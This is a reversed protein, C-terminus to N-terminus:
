RVTKVRECSRSVKDVKDVTARDDKGGGCRVKDRSGDAANVRDNGGGANIRDKGPGGTLRDAGAGGKLVDAGPQGKLRDDAGQGRLLDKGRGGKLLDDGAGGDACDNGGLADLRDDGGAGLLLDPGDTGTLADAAEGGTRTVAAAGQCIGPEPAVPPEVPPAALEVSGIDTGDAGAANANALDVTRALGRQDVTRGSATAADVAPSSTAPLHTLTPGGNDALPGLQPDVPTAASGVQDGTGAAFGCGAANGVLNFGASGIAGFCDPAGANVNGAVITGGLTLTGTFAPDVFIGGGRDAPEAGAGLDADAENATVTAGLLTVTAASSLHIGGGEDDASNGSVTSDVLSVNAENAIALGGGTESDGPAAQDAVNDIIATREIVTVSQNQLFLGGGRGASSNESITSDRITMTAQNQNMVGGGFSGADDNRHITTREITMVADNQNM